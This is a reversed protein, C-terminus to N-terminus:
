GAPSIFRDTGYRAPTVPAGILGSRVMWASMATVNGAQLTGFPVLGGGSFLPLYVKLAASVSSLLLLAVFLLPQHFSAIPLCVAMLALGCVIVATVYARAAPPLQAM